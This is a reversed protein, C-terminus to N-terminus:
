SDVTKRGCLFVTSKALLYEQVVWLRQFWSRRSLAAIPKFLEMQFLKPTQSKLHLIRDNLQEESTDISDPPLDVDRIADMAEDSGDSAQGLWAYVLDANHYLRNM